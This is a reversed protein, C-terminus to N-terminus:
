IRVFTSFDVESVKTYWPLHFQAIWIEMGLCHCYIGDGMDESEVFYVCQLLALRGQFSVIRYVNLGNEEQILDGIQFTM